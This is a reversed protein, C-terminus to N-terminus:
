GGVWAQVDQAVSRNRLHNCLSHRRTCGVTYHKSAEQSWACQLVADIGVQKGLVAIAFVDDLRRHMVEEREVGPRFVSVLRM